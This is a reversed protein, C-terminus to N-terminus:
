INMYHKREFPSLREIAYRLMTRPMRTVHTDLFGKLAKIDKKGVERLMWGAAKHILDQSDCLLLESIKLTDTFEGKRILYQTAVIAIRRKWLSTSVAYTYLIDRSNKEIYAGLIYPASADVLDWNNVKSVNKIYSRVIRARGMEDAKEYQIVLILLATMRYEHIHSRLLKEVEVLSLNKFTKAVSRQEPITIGIFTDGYGYAGKYVKFFRTAEAAKKPSASANLAYAVDLAKM